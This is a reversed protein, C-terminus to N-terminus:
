YLSFVTSSIIRKRQEESIIPLDTHTHERTMIFSSPSIKTENHTTNNYTNVAKPLNEIWTSPGKTLSRLFEIITRNVREVAGNSSPKHATTKIHHINLREVMDSFEFSNFEPGNDTLIKTPIKVLGSFM